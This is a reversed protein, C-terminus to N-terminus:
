EGRTFIHNLTLNSKRTTWERWTFTVTFTSTSFEDWKENYYQLTKGHISLVFNKRMKDNDNFSVWSCMYIYTSILQLALHTAFLSCFRGKEEKKTKKKVRERKRMNSCMNCEVWSLTCMYLIFYRMWNVVIRTILSLHFAAMQEIIFRAYSSCRTSPPKLCKKGKWLLSVNNNNISM